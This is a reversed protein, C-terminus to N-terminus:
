LRVSFKSVVKTRLVGFTVKKEKEKSDSLIKKGFFSTLCTILNSHGSWFMIFKLRRRFYNTILILCDNIM